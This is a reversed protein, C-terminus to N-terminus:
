GVEVQGVPVSHLRIKSVYGTVMSFNGSKIRDVDSSIDRLISELERRFLSEDRIDYSEVASQLPKPLAM